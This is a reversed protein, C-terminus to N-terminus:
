SGSVAFEAGTGQEASEGPPCPEEAPATDQAGTNSPKAPAAPVVPVVPSPAASPTAGGGTSPAPTTGGGTGSPSAAAPTAGGGTGGGTGTGNQTAPTADAPKADGAKGTGDQGKDAGDKADVATLRGDEGVRLTAKEVVTGDPKKATVEVTKGDASLTATVTRGLADVGLVKEGKTDKAGAKDAGKDDGTKDTAKDASTKDKEGLGLAETLKPLLQSLWSPTGSGTGTGTGTSPTASSPTTSAGTTTPSSTTGTTTPSTTTPSTTTPSSSTPTTSSPSTSTPSTSSPSSTTPSGSGGSGGSGSTVPSATTPSTTTQTTTATITGFSPAPFASADIGKAAAPVTAYAAQVASVATANIQDFRALDQALQAEFRERSDANLEVLSAVGPVVLGAVRMVGVWVGADAEKSAFESLADTKTKVASLVAGPVSEAAAATRELVTAVPESRKQHADLTTVAARGANDPWATQVSTRAASQDTVAQRAATAQQRLMVADGRLSALDIGRENDYDRCVHDRWDPWTKQSLWKAIDLMAKFYQLCDAGADLMQDVTQEAM